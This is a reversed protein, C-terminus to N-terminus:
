GAPFKKSPHKVYETWDSDNDPLKTKSLLAYRHRSGLMSVSPNSVLRAGLSGTICKIRRQSMSSHGLPKRRIWRSLTLLSLEDRYSFIVFARAVRLLEKLLSDRQESNLHHSLRVCVVGDVSNDQLPINLGSATMWITRQDANSKNKNILLQALSSDAEILCETRSAIPTSLRGGGCPLNLIFRAQTQSALLRRIIELERSTRRRKRPKEEFSENYRLVVDARQFTQRYRDASYERALEDGDDDAKGRSRSDPLPEDRYFLVVNDQIKFRDGCHDCQLREDIKSLGAHCNPCKLLRIVSPAIGIRVDSQISM